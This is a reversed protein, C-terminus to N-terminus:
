AVSEDLDRDGWLHRLRVMIALSNRAHSVLMLSARDAGTAHMPLCLSQGSALHWEGSGPMKIVVTGRLCYCLLTEVLPEWAFEVVERTVLECRHEAKGRATMVNFDRVPGDLLRCHTLWEGSFRRSAGPVVLRANASTQDFNLEMGKGSVLAITRDFGPFLSFDCDSVVDALSVRWLFDGAALKAGPPYVAIEHTTGLGNKWPMLRYHGADLLQANEAPSSM